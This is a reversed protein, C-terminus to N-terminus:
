SSAKKCPTSFLYEANVAYAEGVSAGNRQVSFSYETKLEVYTLTRANKENEQMRQDAYRYVTLDIYALFTLNWLWRPLPTIEPRCRITGQVRLMALHPLQHMKNDPRISGQEQYGTPRTLHIEICMDKVAPSTNNSCVNTSLLYRVPIRFGTM